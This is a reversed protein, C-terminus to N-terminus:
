GHSNNERKLAGPLQNPRLNDINDELIRRMEEAFTSVKRPIYLNNQINKM